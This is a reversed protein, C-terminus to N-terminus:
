DKTYWIQIDATKSSYDKNTTILIWGLDACLDIDDGNYHRPLTYGNSTVGECRFVLTAGAGIQISGITANPLYGFNILKTYVAKGKYRETTRYEVGLAMPPNVWEWETWTGNIKKRFIRYDSSNYRCFEQCAYNAHYQVHVGYWWNNDPMNTDCLYFGTNGIANADLLRTTNGGLGYGAPAAGVEAATPMWTSPRAGVETATPTWTNPRAGVDEATHTHDTTAAGLKEATPKNYIYDGKSPDTQDFDPKPLPTGVTVGIIKM